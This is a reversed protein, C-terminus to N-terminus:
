PAAQRQREIEALFPDLAAPSFGEAPGRLVLAELTRFREKQPTVPPALYIGRALLPKERGLGASKQLERLKRRLWPEGAEGYYLLVADCSSLSEEHDLRAEAEDEAFLPLVVEFGRDFLFGELTRAAEEDQQDCLLYIRAPGDPGPAAANEKEQRPERKPEPPELKRHILSKLDELPIELLEAGAHVAPDTRLHELFDRQRADEVEPGHRLWILRTLGAASRGAAVEHQLVVTSRTEGEPVVGYGNGVLHISLACNALEERVFAELEGAILPLPRDPLVRFGNRVLDRKVSERDERLDFSTEALYVTAKQPEADQRQGDDSKIRELLRSIDYALDDLRVLLQREAEPGYAQALERPRGSQPDVVYFEYGLFPQLEAPHNELPVPTKVVKFIRAKDGIRLGEREAAVRCFERIEEMCWKSQLYRPSLVVVLAATRPLQEEVITDAFYDNGQLKADRWITPRAGLFQAVRIDLLRHLWTIWGPQGEILAQDDLRAYSILLDNEFAM